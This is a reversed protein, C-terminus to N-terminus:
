LQCSPLGKRWWGRSLIILRTYLVKPSGWFPARKCNCAYDRDGFMLAVKVGKDLLYALDALQGGRIDKRAYDGTAQFAAYVGNTSETFNVPVGLAGQVWHQSLYGLFYPYPFPDPDIAAIDYFNRGSYNVYQGEVENSCYDSANQCVENVHDVNGYANPDYKDALAQCNLIQDKCGTEPRYFNDM